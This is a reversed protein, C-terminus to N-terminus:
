TILNRLNPKPVVSAAVANKGNNNKRRRAPRALKEPAVGNEFAVRLMFDRRVRTAHAKRARRSLEKKEARSREKKRKPSKPNKRKPAPELVLSGDSRRVYRARFLRFAGDVGLKMHALLVTVAKAKLRKLHARLERRSMRTRPCAGSGESREPSGTCTGSARNMDGQSFCEAALAPWPSTYARAYEREWPPLDDFTITDSEALHIM